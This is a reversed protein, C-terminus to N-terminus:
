KPYFRPIEQKEDLSTVIADLLALQGQLVEIHQKIVAAEEPTPVPDCDSIDIGGQTSYIDSCEQARSHPM